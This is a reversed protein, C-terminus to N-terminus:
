GRERLDILKESNSQFDDVWNEPRTHKLVRGSPNGRWDGDRAIYIEQRDLKVRHQSARFCSQGAEYVLWTEGEAVRLESYKRGCTKAAHLMEPTLNEVRVQWGKTYQPCDVEACTAPRWHTKLPAVIQYTKYDNVRGQPPLRNMRM